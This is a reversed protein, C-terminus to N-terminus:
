ARDREIEKDMLKKFYEPEYKETCELRADRYGLAYAFDIVDKFVPIELLRNWYLNFYREAGHACHIRAHLSPSIGVLNKIHNNVRNGDIHHVHMDEDYDGTMRMYRDRYDSYAPNSLVM